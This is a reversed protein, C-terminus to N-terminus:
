AITREWGLLSEVLQWAALAVLVAVAALHVLRRAREGAVLGVVLEVAIIALPPGLVLVVVFALIDTWDAGRAIFTEPSRGFSALIPRAIVFASLALLELAYPRVRRLTGGAGPGDPSAVAEHEPAADPADSRATVAM